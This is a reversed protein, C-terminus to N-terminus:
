GDELTIFLDNLMEVGLADLKRGAREPDLVLGRVM